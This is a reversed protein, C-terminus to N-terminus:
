LSTKDLHKLAADIFSRAALLLERRAARRHEALGPPLMAELGQRLEKGAAKLHTRAEPPFLKDLPDKPAAGASTGTNQDM